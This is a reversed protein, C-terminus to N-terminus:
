PSLLSVWEEMVKLKCGHRGKNAELGLGDLIQECSCGATDETTFQPVPADSADDDSSSDDDSNSDDEAGTDFVNDGDVLAYRRKKLEATPLGEPIATGPCLDDPDAVGDADSDVVSPLCVGIANTLSADAISALPMGTAADYVNLANGESVYLKSGNPHVAFQDAGFFAVAPAVAINLFPTAGLAGTVEDYTFGQLAAPTNSRVYAASGDPSIAASVGRQGAQTTTAAASLPPYTYARLFSPLANRDSLVANGGAPGCAVNTIAGLPASEGTNTLSGAGDITLRLAGSGGSTIVSDDSCADVAYSESGADFFGIEARAAVDVVSVRTSGGGNTDLLFKQDASLTTDLPFHSVPIPNTGAALAVALPDVVWVQRGSFHSVFGLSQDGLISCDVIDPGGPLNVAGLVTDSDADFVIVNGGGDVVLGRTQSLTAGSAAVLLAAAAFVKFTTSNALGQM